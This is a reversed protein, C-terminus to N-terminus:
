KPFVLAASEDALAKMAPADDELIFGAAVGRDLAAHWRALYSERDPYLESLEAATFSRSSGILSALIDGDRSGTHVGTPVAFDPLRIGGLANGFHDRRITPPDGDDFEIRDQQPPTPGGTIWRQFHHTAARRAPLFSLVNPDEPMLAGANTGGLGFEIGDRAVLPAMLDAQSAIGGTHCTGAVEWLRLLDTDPQRVPFLSPAETETNFVFAPVGLDDRIRVPVAPLIGMPGAAVDTTDPVSGRGFDVSFWFADFVREVPQVANAYTRLRMASQSGGTAVVIRPELGGLTSPTIARAAQTYMDFSFDDGPHQLTGYRDPDWGRLAFRETGTMGEVGIRQASVSVWACGDTLLLEDPAGIEFGATVNQWSVHVVGNFRVADRPRVVLMRTRFPAERAPEVRWVGDIGLESGPAARYATATGELFYEEAVCGIADLDFIPLSFPWGHAGGTVPGTVETM